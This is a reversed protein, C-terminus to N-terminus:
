IMNSLPSFFHCTSHASPKLHLTPTFGTSLASLKADVKQHLSALQPNFTLHEDIEVGLYRVHKSAEIHVGSITLHRGAPVAPKRIHLYCTKNAKLTLGQSTFFSAIRQINQELLSPAREPCRHASDLTTDDAYLQITSSSVQTPLRRTLLPSSRPRLRPSGGSHM